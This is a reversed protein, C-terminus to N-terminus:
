GAGSEARLCRPVGPRLRYAGDGSFPYDADAFLVGFYPGGVEDAFKLWASDDGVPSQLAQDYRDWSLAAAVPALYALDIFVATGTDVEFTDVEAGAEPVLELDDLGIEYVGPVFLAVCHLGIKLTGVVGALRERRLDASLSGIQQLEESIADLALPDLIVLDPSSLRFVIPRHDFAVNLAQSTV